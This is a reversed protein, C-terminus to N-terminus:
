WSTNEMLSQLALQVREDMVECLSLKLSLPDVCGRDATAEPAYRWLEVVCTGTDPTPITRPADQKPWLRSALAYEPEAPDALDTLAALASEGARLTVVAPLEANRIRLRQRVPSRLLPQARKWAVDGTAALRLLRERGRVETSILGGAELEKVAQSVGAPTCGLAGAATTVTIPPLVRQLLLAILLQQAVPGLVRVPQPRLRQPRQTTEASGIAPWFLQRGPVVFPQGLEILRRRVYPSLHDAVLCVGVPGPDLLGALQGLQKTLQLPPPPEAQRLFAALWVQGALRIPLPEYRQRLYGPLAPGVWPQVVPEIGALQQVYALFPAALPHM